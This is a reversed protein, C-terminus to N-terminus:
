YRINGNDWVRGDFTVNYVKSNSLQIQYQIAHDAVGKPISLIKTIILDNYGDNLRDGPKHFLQGIYKDGMSQGKHSRFPRSEYQPSTYIQSLKKKRDLYSQVGLAGKVGVTQLIPALQMATTAIMIASSIPSAIAAGKALLSTLGLVM